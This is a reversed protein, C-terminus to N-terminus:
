ERPRKGNHCREIAANVSSAAKHCTHAINHQAKDDPQAKEAAAFDLHAREIWAQIYEKEEDDANPCEKWAELAKIVGACEDTM